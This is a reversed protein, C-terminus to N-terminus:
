RGPCGRDSAAVDHNLEKNFMPCWVCSDGPAADILQFRHPNSEINLDLLQFGIKYLRELAAEAIARDYPARWVFSDDLWGGRPFFILAVYNVERGAREHGLGYLHVQTIYGPKPPEGRQLKRMNDTGTTKYDLVTGSRTNFVDSHGHVLPDPQVRLETLWGRDGVAKQYRNLAVELWNHVATGVIAPWPDAWINVPATGAIRYAIRRDCPDGLESPGITKQLSRPSTQENWMIIEALERKLAMSAPDPGLQAFDSTL